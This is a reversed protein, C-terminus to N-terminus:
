ETEGWSELLKGLLGKLLEREEENLAQFMDKKNEEWSTEVQELGLETIKLVVKRKDEEDREKTVFGRAELKSVLESMSGSQIHFYEQLEKQTLAGNKALMKLIRKQGHGNNPQHRLFHTCKGLLLSLEDMTDIDKWCIKHEQNGHHKHGRHGKRHRGRIMSDYPSLISDAGHKQLHRRSRETTQESEHYQYEQHKEPSTAFFRKGKECQLDTSPCGNPCQTCHNTKNEQITNQNMNSEKKRQLLIM